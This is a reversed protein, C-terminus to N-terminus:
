IESTVTLVDVGSQKQNKVLTANVKEGCMLSYLKNTAYFDDTGQEESHQIRGYIRILKGAM